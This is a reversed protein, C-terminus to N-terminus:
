SWKFFRLQLWACQYLLRITVTSRVPPPPPSHPLALCTRETAAMFCCRPLAHLRGLFRARHLAHRGACADWPCPYVHARLARRECVRVGYVGHGRLMM